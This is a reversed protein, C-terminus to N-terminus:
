FTIKAAVMVRRPTGSQSTIIGFTRPALISAGPAGSNMHNLANQAEFRFQLRQKETLSFNKILSFDWQSYGPSRFDPFTGPVDGYVFGTLVKFSSPNFYPQVGASGELSAHGSVNNDYPVRPYNFLPQSARGVGINYWPSAGGIGSSPQTVRVPQGSRYTTTGAMVWGGVAHNLVKAAVTQPNNLLRRGRGFPVELSYNFLLKQAMDSPAIGYVDGLPKGAQPYAMGGQGDYSGVDQLLKSVTYNVLLGYGGAFRHEAQVYGSNYNSVGLGEGKTWVETFPPNLRYLAGLPLTAGSMGTSAPIQGIFPNPVQVLLTDGLPGIKGLADPLIHEGKGLAWPLRRGFNGNYSLEFVWARPGSGLQRQIGMHVTYEHGPDLKLTNGYFWNGLISRNLADINRTFPVYGAGNPMPNVFTLPYTLGGDPSGGQILRAADGYGVNMGAGGLFTGGTLTMWNVGFAARLVTRNTAQYAVGLRPSFQHPSSQQLTRGPYESSGMEAVRGFFGKTIWDPVPLTKGVKQQILDWNWGANPQWTWKYNPDWFTQRDYRETRVPEFDWRIGANLTWKANFRIDDQIFAGHYPVLSAPGAVQNGAGRTIAGLLWSALPAGNGKTPSDMFQATISRQTGMVFQGGLAESGGGTGVLNSYYRRHEYGIKITQKGVLKQMTVAAHYSTDYSNNISGGGLSFPADDSTRPDDTYIWPVRTKNTGLISRIQPALPWNSSDITDGMRDEALVQSRGVGGRLVLVTSPSVVINHDVSLTFAENISTTSPQLQSLWRATASQFRYKTWTVHTTQSANWNEDGRVTVRNNHSPNSSGGIFNQVHSSGARAAQNPQPYYGLYIKSLADFRGVPIQNSPFLDRVVRGSVMRGTTPDAVMVPFGGDILSQSFNGDRELATPVSALQANDGERHRMGEYNFFFFSKSRGDYVKPIRVPGGLSGGFVNDHFVGKKAGFRNSNWDNANLMDNRFYEYASGHFENSGSRTVLTVAGGSLRGYEASIGNTIVKFEGVADMSPISSPIDHRYGTSLAMGDLYYESQAMRGGNIRFDSDHTMNESTGNVNATLTAFALPNRNYQPLEQIRRNEIVLGSQSDETRLLAAEATVAIQQTQAGVEMTLDLTVRDGVRLTAGSRELKNMGPFEATIVYNGPPLNPISYIGEGNSQTNKSVNTDSNRVTVTANPLVAGSADVVRGSITANASQAHLGATMLLMLLTTLICYQLNTMSM